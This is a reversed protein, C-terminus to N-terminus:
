PMRSGLTCGPSPSAWQATQSVWFPGNDSGTKHGPRWCTAAPVAPLTLQKKQGSLLCQFDNLFLLCALFM